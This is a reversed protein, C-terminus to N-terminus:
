QCGTPFPFNTEGELNVQYKGVPEGGAWIFFALGAGRAPTRAINEPLLALKDLWNRNSLLGPRAWISNDPM